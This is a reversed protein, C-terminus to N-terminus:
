EQLGPLSFFFKTGKGPASEARIIGGHRHLIRRVTALGIGTGTFDKESHLRQFPAFLKDAFRPDFGAGADAIFYETKDDAGQVSGFHIDAQPKKSSFKVANHLLNRLMVDILAQDGRVHIKGDVSLSIPLAPFEDRLEAVIAEARESIDIDSAQLPVTSAKALAMTARIMGEMRLVETRIHALFGEAKEGLRNRFDEALANVWGQIRTLPARLDHSVSYSFSELEKNIFDLESTRMAVREELKRSLEEYANRSNVLETIEVTMYVSLNLDPMPDVSVNFWRRSGSIDHGVVFNHFAEGARAAKVTPFDKFEIPLNDISYFSYEQPGGSSFNVANMNAHDIAASNFVSVSGDRSLLRVGVPLVDFVQRFKMESKHLALRASELDTLDLSYSLILDLAPVFVSQSAYWRVSDDEFRIGYFQSQVVGPADLARRSPMEDNSGAEGAPTLVPRRAYSHSALVEPTLSFMKRAATNSKIIQRSKNMLVMGVPSNEFINELLMNNKISDDKRKVEADINKMTGVFRLPNGLEDRSVIIGRDKVWVYEGNKGLIRQNCEYEPVNGISYQWFAENLLLLDEPHIRAEWSKIDDPLEGKKFGLMEEWRKSFHVEGTRFNFDWVADVTSDLAFDLLDGTERISEMHIDNCLSIFGFSPILASLFFFVFLITQTVDPTMINLQAGDVHGLAIVGRAIMAICSIAYFGKLLSLTSRSAHHGFRFFIRILSVAIWAAYFSSVTIRLPLSPFLFAFYILLLVTVSLLVAHQVISFEAGLLRSFARLQLPLASVLLCTALISVALPPAFGFAILTWITWGAGSLLLALAWSAMGEVHALRGRRLALPWLSIALSGVATLLFLTAVHIGPPNM